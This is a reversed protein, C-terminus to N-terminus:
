RLKVTSPVYLLVVAPKYFLWKISCMNQIFSISGLTDHFSTFSYEGKTNVVPFLNKWLSDKIIHGAPMCQICKKM